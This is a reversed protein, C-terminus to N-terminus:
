NTRAAHHAALRARQAPTLVEAADALAQVARRSVVDVQRVQEARLAELGARDVTPGLLMAHAQAHAQRFQAHVSGIDGHLARAITRLRERQEPTADPLMRAVMADFHANMAAPDTMGGHGPGAHTGHMAHGGQGLAAGAVGATGATFALLGALM